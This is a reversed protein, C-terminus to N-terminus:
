TYAWNQKKKKKKTKKQKMWEENKDNDICGNNPRKCTVLILWFGDDLNDNQALTRKGNDCISAYVYAQTWITLACASIWHYAVFNRDLQTKNKKKNMKKEEMTTPTTESKIFHFIITQMLSSLLIWAFLETPCGIRFRMIITETDCILVCWWVINTSNENEAFAAVAAVAGLWFEYWLYIKIEKRKRRTKKNMKQNVNNPLMMMIMPEAWNLHFKTWRM